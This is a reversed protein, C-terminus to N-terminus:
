AIKRKGRLYPPDKLSDRFDSPSWFPWVSPDGSEITNGRSAARAKPLLKKLGRWVWSIASQRPWRYPLDTKLFIVARAFDRRATAPLKWKGVLRHEHFDDYTPWALVWEIEGVAKDKSHVTKREFTFNTVAGSALQRLREALNERATRDIMANM